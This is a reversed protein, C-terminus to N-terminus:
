PRLGRSKPTDLTAHCWFLAACAIRRRGNQCSELFQVQVTSKTGNQAPRSNRFRTLSLSLAAPSKERPTRRSRASAPLSLSLTAPANGDEIAVAITGERLPIKRRPRWASNSFPRPETLTGFPFRSLRPRLKERQRRPAFPRRSRRPRRPPPVSAAALGGGAAHIRPRPPSAPMSARRLRASGGGFAAPSAFPTQPTSGGNFLRGAHIRPWRKAPTIARNEGGPRGFTGRRAQNQSRFRRQQSQRSIKPQTKGDVL